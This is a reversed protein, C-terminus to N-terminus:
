SSAPSGNGVVNQSEQRTSTRATPSSSDFPPMTASSASSAVRGPDARSGARPRHARRRAARPLEVAAARAGVAPAPARSWDRPRLARRRRELAQVGVGGGRQRRRGVREAPEHELAGPGDRGSTQQAHAHVLEAHLRARSSQRLPSRITSRMRASGARAGIAVLTMRSSGARAAGAGRGSRCAPRARRREVAIRIAPPALRSLAHRGLDAPRVVADEGVRGTRTRRAVRTIPLGGSRAAASGRRLGIRGLFQHPDLAAALGRHALPAM